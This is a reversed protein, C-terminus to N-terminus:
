ATRKTAKRAKYICAHANNWCDDIFFVKREGDTAIGKNLERMVRCFDFPKYNDLWEIETFEGYRSIKVDGDVTHFVAESYYSEKGEKENFDFEYETFSYTGSIVSTFFDIESLKRFEQWCCAHYVKGHVKVCPNHKVDHITITQGCCPCVSHPASITYAFQGFMCTQENSNKFYQFIEVDATFRTRDTTFSVGGACELKIYGFLVFENLMDKPYAKHYLKRNKIMQSLTALSQLSEQIGNVSDFNTRPVDFMKEEYQVEAKLEYNPDNMERRLAEEKFELMKCQEKSFFPQGYIDFGEPIVKEGNVTVKVTEPVALKELWLSGKEGTSTKVLNIRRKEINKM